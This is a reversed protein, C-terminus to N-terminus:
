DTHREGSVTKAPTCRPKLAKDNTSEFCFDCEYEMEEIATQPYIRMEFIDKGQRLWRDEYKSRILAEENILTEIKAKKLPPVPFRM